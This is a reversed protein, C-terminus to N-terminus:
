NRKEGIEVMTELTLKFVNYDPCVRHFYNLAKLPSQRCRSDSIKSFGWRYLKRRFSTFKLDPFVERELSKIDHIEFADGSENWSIINAYNKNDLINMLQKLACAAVIPLFTKALCTQIHHSIFVM